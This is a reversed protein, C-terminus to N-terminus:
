GAYTLVEALDSLVRDVNPDHKLLPGVGAVRLGAARASRAGTPSDEVALVAAPSLGFRRCAMLYPEPAPKGERVDDLAISFALIDQIGLAKLNADVVVRGSNSVACQPVGLEQLARVTEVAGPRLPLLFARDAYGRDMAAVFATEDLFGPLQPRLARWVDLVHVGLFTEEPLASLDLGFGACVEVLVSHHAPESDILTGDIDWAVAAVRDSM